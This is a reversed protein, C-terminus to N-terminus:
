LLLVDGLFSLALWGARGVAPELGPIINLQVREDEGVIALVFCVRWAYVWTSFIMSLMYISLYLIQPKSYTQNQFKRGEDIKSAEGDDGYITFATM